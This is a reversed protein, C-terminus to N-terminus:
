ALPACQEGWYGGGGCYDVHQLQIHIGDPDSFYLEPTGGEAGGRNPMRLSVWHVLPPTNDPDARPTIGVSELKTQIGEVSFDQVSLSVHDIRGPRTPQGEAAGGVYMLFQKGDGVGVTPMTPGQYSQYQLGFLNLYFQNTNPAHSMFNTFHNIDDLAMLGSDAPSMNQCQGSPDGCYSPACLQINLGEADAFAIVQENVPWYQMARDLANSQRAAGANERFGHARLQASVGAANFNRVSLGIHTIGPQEGARTPQLSLFRPGDGIRLCVTDGARAQVPMGFVQQYFAVSREVDSVRLGFTHLKQVDIASPGNQAFLLSSFPVLSAFLLIKRRLLNPSERVIAENSTYDQRTKM